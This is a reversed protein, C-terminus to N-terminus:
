EARLSVMPDTRAARIAPLACAAIGVVLVSVAVSALTLGDLASAEFLLTRIFRAALLAVGVGAAIGWLVVRGGEALVGRVIGGPTAGLVLRVGFERSQEVTTAALLAHLGIVALLATLGAFFGFLLVIAKRPALQADVRESMAQIIAIGGPNLERLRQRISDAMTVNPSWVRLVLGTASLGSQNLPVYVTPSDTTLDSHRVDRVDVLVGVVTWWVPALGSTPKFANIRMRKGLPSDGPWAQQALQENVIVVPDAGARDRDTLWRGRELRTRMTNFYEPSVAEASVFRNSRASRETQGETAFPSSIGAPGTQAVSEISPLSALGNAVGDFFLGAAAGSPADLAVSLLGEPTFGLDLHELRSMSRLLLGVCTLLVVAVAIEVVVLMYRGSRRLGGSTLTRGASRLVVELRTELSFAPAAWCLMTAGAGVLLTFGIVRASIAADDLRPLDQPVLALVTPLAIQALLVAAAVALGVLVGSEWLMHRAIAGATAGLAQRVAFEHHRTSNQVLMLGAVNASAVLLLLGTAGLLAWLGPRWSGVLDDVLPTLASRVHDRRGEAANLEGMVRNLDSRADRLSIGAQLRGVVYLLGADKSQIFDPMGAGGIHGLSPVLPTWVEAGAPFSFGRPMVGVVRFSESPRRQGSLDIESFTISTGVIRPDGGFARRWFGDSLVVIRPAGARDDAPAIARGLAAHAGLVEFFEGSVARQFVIRPDSGDLVLAFNSSGMAALGDFARARTRWDQFAAYSVESRPQIANDGGIVLRDEDAFPFPRFMVADTVSFLAANAGIGIALTLAAVATFGPSQRLRRAAWRLDHFASDAWAPTRM